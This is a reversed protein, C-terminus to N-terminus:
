VEIRAAVAEMWITELEDNMLRDRLNSSTMALVSM